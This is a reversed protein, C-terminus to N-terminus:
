VSAQLGALKTEAAKVNGKEIEDHIAALLEQDKTDPVVSPDIVRIQKPEPERHEERIPEPATDHQQDTVSQPPVPPIPPLYTPKLWAQYVIFLGIVGAVFYLIHSINRRYM